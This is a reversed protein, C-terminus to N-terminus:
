FSMPSSSLVIEFRPLSTLSEIVDEPHVGGIIEFDKAKSLLAIWGEIALPEDDVLLIRIKGIPNLTEDELM